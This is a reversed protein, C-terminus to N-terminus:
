NAPNPSTSFSNQQQSSYTGIQFSGSCGANQDSTGALTFFTGNGVINPQGNGQGSFDRIYINNANCSGQSRTGVAGANNSDFATGNSAVVGNSIRVITLRATTGNTQTDLDPGQGEARIAVTNNTLDCQELNIAGSTAFIGKGNGLFFSNRINVTSAAGGAASLGATTLQQFTCREVFLNGSSHAIGTTNAANQGNFTFNRIVVLNGAGPNVVMGATGAGISIFGTEGTVAAITIAKTITVGGFGGTDLAIIEGGTNTIGHAATLFRCPAARQCNTATNADSGTTAVFSRATQAQVQSASFVAFLLLGLAVMTLKMKM